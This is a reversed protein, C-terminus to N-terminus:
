AVWAPIAGGFNTIKELTLEDLEKGSVVRYYKRALEKIAGDSLASIPVNKAGDISIRSTILVKWSPPLKEIFGEYAQIDEVILDELNDLIVLLNDKELFERMTEFNVDPIQYLESLEKLFYQEINNFVEEQTKRKIGDVTLYEKKLTLYM